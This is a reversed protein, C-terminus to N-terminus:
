AAGASERTPALLRWARVSVEPAHMAVAGLHDPEPFVTLLTWRDADGEESDLVVPAADPDISVTFRCLQNAIGQGSAKVVAEKCAWTHLFARRLPEGELQSLADAEAPSFYRRALNLAHGPARGAPELDVGVAADRAVAILARGDSRAISFSLPIEECCGPDLFPKGRPDRLISVDKGPLGLYAGLLLRLYFRRLTRQRSIGVSRPGIDGHTGADPDLPNGLADLQLYWLHLEREGPPDLARIPLRRAEFRPAENDTARAPM